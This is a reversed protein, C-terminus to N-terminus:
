EFLGLHVGRDKLEGTVLVAQDAPVGATFLTVVMLFGSKLIDIGEEELVLLLTFM